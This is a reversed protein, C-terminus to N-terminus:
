ITILATMLALYAWLGLLAVALELGMQTVVLAVVGIAKAIDILTLSM